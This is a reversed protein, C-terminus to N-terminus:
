MYSRIDLLGANNARVSLEANDYAVAQNNGLSNGYANLRKTGALFKNEMVNNGDDANLAQRLGLINSPFEYRAGDPKYFPISVPEMGTMNAKRMERALLQRSMDDVHLQFNLTDARQKLLEALVSAQPIGDGQFKSRLFPSNNLMTLASKLYLTAEKKLYAFDADNEALLRISVLDDASPVAKKHGVTGLPNGGQSM